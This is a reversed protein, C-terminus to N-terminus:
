WMSGSAYAKCATMITLFAVYIGAPGAMMTSPIRRDETCRKLIRPVLFIVSYTLMYSRPIENAMAMTAIIIPGLCLAVRFLPVPWRATMNTQFSHAYWAAEVAGVSAGIALACAVSQWYLSPAIFLLSILAILANGLLAGAFGALPRGNEWGSRSMGRVSLAALLLIFVGQTSLTRYYQMFALTVAACIITVLLYSKTKESAESKAKMWLITAGETMNWTVLVAFLTLWRKILLDQAFLDDPIAPVITAPAVIPSLRIMSFLLTEWFGRKTTM